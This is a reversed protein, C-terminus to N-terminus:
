ARGILGPVLVRMAGPRVRLVAPLWGVFEGDLQLPVRRGEVGDWALTVAGGEIGRGVGRWRGSVYARLCRWLVPVTVRDVGVVRLRGSDLAGGPFVELNGAYLRGNGALVVRGEFTRGGVTTRVRDPFRRWAEIAAVVYALKGLRKKLRGDVREVARADLGAGAVVAFHRTVRRGEGDRFEAWGADVRRSEATRLAAWARELDMPMGLEHALVNATGLPLVGLAARDLGGDADAMGNLVEYVTGDGGAAVVRPFGAEVAERALGRAAGPGTTPRLSAEDGTSELFSRFRAAKEGRAAPNFIVCTERAGRSGGRAGDGGGVSPLAEEM